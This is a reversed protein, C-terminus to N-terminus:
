SASRGVLAKVQISRAWVLTLPNREGRYAIQAAESCVQLGVM